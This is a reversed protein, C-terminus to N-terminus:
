MVCWARGSRTMRATSLNFVCVVATLSLLGADAGTAASHFVLVPVPRKQAASHVAERGVCIYPSEVPTFATTCKTLYLDEALATAPLRRVYAAQRSWAAALSRDVFPM